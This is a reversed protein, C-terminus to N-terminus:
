CSYRWYGAARNALGHRVIYSLFQKAHTANSKPSLCRMNFKSLLRLYAGDTLPGWQGDIALSEGNLLNCSAQVLTTDSRVGTRIYTVATGNDFHIHNGHASNYWTTLVTGVYRRCQAAVAVYRRRNAITNSSRWSWNMDVMGNAWQVKTLDFARASGHYGSKCVGVGVDGVWQVGGLSGYNTSFFNLNRIWNTCTGHFTSNFHESHRGGHIGTGSSNYGTRHGLYWSDYGIWSRSIASYSSCHGM